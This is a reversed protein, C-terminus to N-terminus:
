ESNIESDRGLYIVRMETRERLSLFNFLTIIKKNKGLV